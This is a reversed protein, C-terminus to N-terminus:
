AVSWLPLYVAHFTTVGVACSLLVAASMRRKSGEAGFFVVPEDMRTLRDMDIANPSSGERAGGLAVLKCMHGVRGFAKSVGVVVFRRAGGDVTVVNGLVIRTAPSAAITMTNM